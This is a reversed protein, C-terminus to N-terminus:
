KKSLQEDIIPLLNTSIVTKRIRNLCASADPGGIDGIAMVSAKNLAFYKSHATEELYPLASLDKIKGLIRAIQVRAYTRKDNQLYFALFPVAQVGLKILDRRAVAQKDAPVTSGLNFVAKKVNQAVESNTELTSGAWAIWPFVALCFFASLLLVKKLPSSKM